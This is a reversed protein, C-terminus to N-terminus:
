KNGNFIVNQDLGFVILKPWTEQWKKKEIRQQYIGKKDNNEIIFPTPKVEMDIVDQIGWPSALILEGNMDIKVALATATEPFHAIADFSSLYPPSSNLEHMRAQNKVSWPLQPSIKLLAAEHNKEVAVSIEDKNYYVVDIDALDTRQKFGHLHDWIKSRVFGACVWWDSLKLTQATQLVEMMWKDELIMHKIDKETRLDM